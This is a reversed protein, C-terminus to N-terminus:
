DELSTCRPMTRKVRGLQDQSNSPTTAEMPYQQYLQSARSHSLFISTHIRNMRRTTTFKVCRSDSHSSVCRFFSPSLPPSDNWFLETIPDMAIHPSSAYHLHFVAHWRGNVTAKFKLLYKGYLTYHEGTCLVSISNTCTWFLMNPQSFLQKM